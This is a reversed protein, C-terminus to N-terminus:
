AGCCKKFKKGSGCHCPDNRGIKLANVVPKPKEAPGSFRIDSDRFFWQDQDRVFDAVEHHIYPVGGMTYRARFEVKGKSDGAQGAETALVELGQWVAQESWARMAAVDSDARGDPHTTNMIFDIDRAVYASYRARMLAEATAANKVDALVPQCCNEATLESGCACLSM